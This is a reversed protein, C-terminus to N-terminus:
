ARAVAVARAGSRWAIPRARRRTRIQEGTIVAPGTSPVSACTSRPRAADVDGAADVQGLHALTMWWHVTSRARHVPLERQQPAHHPRRRRRLRRRRPPRPSAHVVEHVRLDGDGVVDDEDALKLREREPSCFASFTSSIWSPRQGVPERREDVADAGAVRPDVSSSQAVLRGPFVLAGAILRSSRRRRRAAQQDREEQQPAPEAPRLERQAREDRGHSTTRPVPTTWRGSKSCVARARRARREAGPRVEGDTRDREELRREEEPQDSGPSSATMRPPKTAPWPTISGNTSPAITKTQAAAPSM